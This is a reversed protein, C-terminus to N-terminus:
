AVVLQSVILGEVRSKEWSLQFIFGGLVLRKFWCTALAGWEGKVKEVQAPLPAHPQNM